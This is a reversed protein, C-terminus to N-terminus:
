QSLNNLFFFCSHLFFNNSSLTNFRVKFIFGICIETVFKEMEEADIRDIPHVENTANYSM